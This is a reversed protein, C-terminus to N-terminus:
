TIAEPIQIIVASCASNAPLVSFALNTNYKCIRQRSLDKKLKRQPNEKKRDM